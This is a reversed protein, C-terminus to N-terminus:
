RCLQLATLQRKLPILINAPPLETGKIDSHLAVSRCQFCRRQVCKAEYHPLRSTMADSAQTQSVPQATAQFQRRVTRDAAAPRRTAVSIDSSLSADALPAWIRWQFPCNNPFLVHGVVSHQSRHLFPLVSRNATQTTSEPPGFHLVLEITNALHGWHARM